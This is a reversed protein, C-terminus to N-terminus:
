RYYGTVVCDRQMTVPLMRIVQEALKQEKEGDAQNLVIRYFRGDLNKRSGREDMLILALDAAEIRDTGNRRLWRGQEEFRFCAEDFTKGVARLGACAIVLGTQPILVPEGERPVKVPLWKAGDAEILIVDALELLREMEASEGLGEPQALKKMPMLPVIGAAHVPEEVPTGTEADALAEVPTGAILINGDWAVDQLERVHRIEAVQGTQPKMIHTSTTVLVKRGREALEDALQYMTTTKGGGGVLSIIRPIEDLNAFGLATLLSPQVSIAPKEQRHQQELQQKVSEASETPETPEATGSERNEKLREMQCLPISEGTWSQVQKIRSSRNWVRSCAGSGAEGFMLAYMHRLQDAVEPVGADRECEAADGLALYLIDFEVGFLCSRTLTRACGNKEYFAMRRRRVTLEKDDAATQESECEILIGRCSAYYAGMVKLFSGGYGGCRYAPCVALFDLLVTRAAEDKVFYGYARLEGEEYLGLCEYIGRDIREMFEELPRLEDPPFDTEMYTHYIDTIQQRNLKQLTTRKM